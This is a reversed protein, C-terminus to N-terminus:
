QRLHELAHPPGALEALRQDGRFPVQDAGLPERGDALHGDGQVVPDVVRQHRGEGV